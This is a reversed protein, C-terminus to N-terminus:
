FKLSVGITYLGGIKDTYAFEKKNSNLLNRSNLFISNEKWVKFNIKLNLIFKPEVKYMDQAGYANTVDVKNMQITQATYYYMTAFFTLKKIPSYEVLAGGFFTPTNKHEMNVLSDPNVANSGTYVKNPSALPSLDGGMIKGVDTRLGGQTQTSM